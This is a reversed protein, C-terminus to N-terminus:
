RGTRLIGPCQALEDLLDLAPGALDGWLFRRDGVAKGRGEFQRSVGAYLDEVKASWEPSGPSVGSWLAVSGEQGRTRAISAVGGVAGEGVTRLFLPGVEIADRAFEGVLDQRGMLRAARLAGTAVLARERPDLTTRVRERETRLFRFLGAVEDRDVRTPFVAGAAPFGLLESIEEPPPLGPRYMQLLAGAAVLAARSGGAERVVERALDLPWRRPNRPWDATSGGHKVLIDLAATEEGSPPDVVEITAWNSQIWGEEEPAGTDRIPGLLGLEYRGPENMPDVYDPWTWRRETGASLLVTQPRGG